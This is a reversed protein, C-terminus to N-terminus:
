LGISPSGVVSVDSLITRSVVEPGDLAKSGGSSRSIFLSAGGATSTLNGEDESLLSTGSVLTNTCNGSESDSAM